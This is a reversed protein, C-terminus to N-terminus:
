TVHMYKLPLCKSEFLETYQHSLCHICSIFNYCLTITQIVLILALPLLAYLQHSSSLEHTRLPFLDQYFMGLFLYSNLKTKISFHFNGFLVIPFPYELFPFAKAFTCFQSVEPSSFNCNQELQFM